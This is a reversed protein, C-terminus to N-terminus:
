DKRNEEQLPEVKDMVERPSIQFDEIQRDSGCKASIEIINADKNFLFFMSESYEPLQELDGKVYSITKPLNSFRALLDTNGYDRSNTTNQYLSM